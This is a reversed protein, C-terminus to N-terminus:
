NTTTTTTLGYMYEKVRIMNHFYLHQLQPQVTVKLNLVKNFFNTNSEVKEQNELSENINAFANLLFHLEAAM